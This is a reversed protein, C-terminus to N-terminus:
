NIIEQNGSPSEYLINGSGNGPEEDTLFDIMKGIEEKMDQPKKDLVQLFKKNDFVMKHTEKEKRPNPIHTIGCKTIEKIMKALNTISICDITQNLITHKTSFNHKIANKLSIVTDQLSIFPKTQQGKGYITIPKNDIAQKIFRNLVTGFYSDTDFRTSLQMPHCRMINTQLGYVISTRFEIVEQGWQRSALSCNASDFGRSTHYWSGAVIPTVDEPVRKYAQGPIGTTTTIIFKTKLDNEKIGWLLNNLMSLNNDQTFIAREGNIQSYPMSPQSALHIIVNPKHIALIEYVFNRNALNEDIFTHKKNLYYDIKHQRQGGCKEVMINRGDNDIGIVKHDTTELLEVLLPYGIYGDCGTILIRM